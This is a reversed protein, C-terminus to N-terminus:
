NKSSPLSTSAQSFNHTLVRAPRKHNNVLKLYEGCMQQAIMVTFAALNGRRVRPITFLETFRSVYTSGHMIQQEIELQCHIYYIDRAVQIPSKRLVLMSKWAEVYRNKKM